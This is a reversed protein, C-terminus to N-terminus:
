KELAFTTEWQKMKEDHMTRWRQLRSQTDTLEAQLRLVENEADTIRQQM